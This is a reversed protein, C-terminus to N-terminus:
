SHDIIYRWVGDTGRHMVVTARFPVRVPERDSLGRMVGHQHAYAHDGDIIEHRELIEVSAMAGVAIVDAWANRIAAKGHALIALTPMFLLAHEEYLEAIGDADGAVFAEQWRDLM